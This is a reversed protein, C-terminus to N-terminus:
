GTTGTILKAAASDIINGTSGGASLSITNQGTSTNSDSINGCLTIAGSSTTVTVNDSATIAGVSVAGAANVTFTSGTGGICCSASNIYAAVANSGGYFTATTATLTGNNNGSSNLSISGPNASTDFLISNGVASLTVGSSLTATLTYPSNTSVLNINGANATVNAGLPLPGHASNLTVASGSITASSNSIISGSTTNSTALTVAGGASITNAVTLAYAGTEVVNFIGSTSGASNTVSSTTALQLGSANSTSDSVYVSGAANSANAALTSTQTLVANTSTGIGASGAAQLIVSGTAGATGTILKAAASDIINGTSGGASLSITNHGTSTNSDSINGCLTIAGSSTTVTVNDSATIAGVSVAGATNVTFTSGTGGICCSASNIYAAVANSGGYFTATTATLTGNNNGSSNLSISGPNASTDFLISNGVASLTVGSSLTATLTYPSNTSVLNINGANATVNAGLTLTGNASNLTVASGSITAGSNSIISGSTTNSTALTVAGGASITNGVTLAGAGTETVTFIGSGSGASSTLVPSASGLSTGTSNSDSIYVSGVT